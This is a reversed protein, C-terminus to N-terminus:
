GERRLFAGLVPIGLGGDATVLGRRRLYRRTARDQAALDVTQGRALAELVALAPAPTAQVLNTLYNNAKDLVAPDLAACDAVTAQRRDADNLRAVLLSGYLQTLYPQGLTRSWVAEAVAPPIADPPFDPSPQTLLGLTVPRTLPGIALERLNVLHDAWMPDLEDVHAAGAILVRLRRRYQITARLLGLLQLLARRDGPFLGEWREFEDICLLIRGVGSGSLDLRELQEFWAALSEMPPGPPADPLTLRRERRGQEQAQGVLAKVLSETSDIPHNQTDFFVVLADPLKLPLM